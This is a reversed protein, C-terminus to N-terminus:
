NFVFSKYTVSSFSFCPPARLRASIITLFSSYVEDKNLILSQKKLLILSIGSFVVAAFFLAFTIQSLIVLEESKHKKNPTNPLSDSKSLPVHVHYVLYNGNVAHFHGNVFVNLNVLGASLLILYVVIHKFFEIM